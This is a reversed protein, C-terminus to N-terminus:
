GGACAAGFEKVREPLVETNIRTPQRQWHRGRTPKKQTSPHGVEWSGVEPRYPNHRTQVDSPVRPGYKLALSLDANVSMSQTEWLLVHKEPYEKEKSIGTLISASSINRRNQRWPSSM